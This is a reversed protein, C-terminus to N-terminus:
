QGRVLYLAILGAIVMFGGLASLKQSPQPLLQAVMRKWADPAAFLYLGEIVLLLALATLLDAWQM